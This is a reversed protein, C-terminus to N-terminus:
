ENKGLSEREAEEQKGGKTEDASAGATEEAADALGMLDVDEDGIDM